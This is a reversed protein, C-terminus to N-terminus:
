INKFNYIFIDIKKKGLVWTEYFCCIVMPPCMFGMMIFDSFALNVVLLNSPTRLSPTMIFVYVVVGNGCWGMIGLIIMVLGLIKHWLPDLPPFQYRCKLIYYYM